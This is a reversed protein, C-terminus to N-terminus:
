VFFAEQPEIRTAWKHLLEPMYADIPPRYPDKLSEIKPKLLGRRYYQNVIEKTPLFPSIYTDESWKYFSLTIEIPLIIHAIRMGPRVTKGFSWIHNVRDFLLDKLAVERCYRLSRYAFDEVLYVGYEQFLRVISM